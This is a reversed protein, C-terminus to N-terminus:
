IVGYFLEDLEDFILTYISKIDDQMSKYISIKDAPSRTITENENNKDKTNTTNDTKTNTTNNSTGIQNSIDNSNANNSNYNYESLYKGDKVNQIQNQPLKSNRLDQINETSNTTNSNIENNTNSVVEDKTNSNVDIHRVDISERKTTEGDEFINWNELSDFMKNYIPMIENLKVDLQIRFATLTDFNIRRMLYHNLIMTEFKEKTIHTSLPYDFNFITTRGIKALDKIKVDPAPENLDINPNVISELLYFLTPPKSCNSPIFFSSFLNNCYKM